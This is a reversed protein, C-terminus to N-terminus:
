RDGVIRGDAIRVQREARAAVGPDHTITVVTLGDRHLGALLELIAATTV